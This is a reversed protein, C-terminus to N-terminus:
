HQNISFKFLKRSNRLAKAKKYISAEDSHLKYKPYKAKKPAHSLDIRSSADFSSRRRQPDVQLNQNLKIPSRSTPTTNKGLRAKIPTINNGIKAIPFADPSPLASRTDNEGNEIRKERGRREEGEGEKRRKKECRMRGKGKGEACVREM